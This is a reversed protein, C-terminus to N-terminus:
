EGAIRRSLHRIQRNRRSRLRSRTTFRDGTRLAPGDTRRIKCYITEGGGCVVEIGDDEAYVITGPRADSRGGVRAGQLVYLYGNCRSLPEYTPSPLPGYDSARFFRVIGMASSHWNVSGDRAEKDKYLRRRSLDQPTRPLHNGAELVDMAREWLRLCARLCKLYVTLGTDSATLPFREQFVMDGADLTDEMWHLTSGFVDEGNRIAWQHTHLGAYEPLMGPHLNLAGHVPIRLLHGPYIFTTNFNILYSPRWELLQISARPEDRLIRLQASPLRAEDIWRRIGPDTDSDFLIGSIEIADRRLTSKLLELFLPNRGALVVRIRDHQSSEDFSVGSTTQLPM